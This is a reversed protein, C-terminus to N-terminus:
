CEQCALMLLANVIGAAVPSGGKNGEVRIQPCPLTSLTKKAELVGIFGVPVGIVLAPRAEGVAIAQCLTLLATPANGIVYIAEPFQTICHDMGTETRTKGPTATPAFDIATQIPNNFTRQVLGQIGQKVMNVDVVITQGQRLSKEGNAIVQNEPLDPDFEAKALDPAFRLLHLFDFDATSHIVRRAIAYEQPSLNHLGVTRDIHAFSALLIPHELPIM